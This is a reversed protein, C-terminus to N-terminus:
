RASGGAATIEIAAVDLLRHGCRLTARVTLTAVGENPLLHLTEIRPALRRVEGRYLADVRLGTVPVRSRLIPAEALHRLEIPEGGQLHPTVQWGDSAVQLFRGDFDDPLFPARARDWADDYTGARQARPSWSAAVPTVIAPSPRDGVRRLREAPDEVNPLRLGRLARDNAPALGVGAPNRPEVLGSAAHRGGFARDPTLPLRTFPTPATCWPADLGTYFRDGLVTLARRLGGVTVGVDLETVARGNPAVADGEVMVDTAAKPPHVESARRLWAADGEGEWEDVLVIPRQADLLPADATLAFTVKVLVHLADVGDPDPLSLIKAPLATHNALQLM